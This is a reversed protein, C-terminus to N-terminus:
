RHLKKTFENYTLNSIIDKYDNSDLYYKKIKKNDLTHKTFNQKFKILSNNIEGQPLGELKHIEILKNIYVDTLHASLTSWLKVGKQQKGSYRYLKDLGLIIKKAEESSSHKSLKKILERLNNHTYLQHMKNEELIMELKLAINSAFPESISDNFYRNSMLDTYGEDLGIGIDTDMIYSYINFGCGNTIATKFSTFAHFLEHYIALEYAKSVRIHNKEIDYDGLYNKKRSLPTITLTTLINTINPFQFDHKTTELFKNIYKEYKSDIQTTNFTPQHQIILKPQTLLMLHKKNINLDKVTKM